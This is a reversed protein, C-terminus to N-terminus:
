FVGVVFYILPDCGDPKIARMSHVRPSTPQVGFIPIQQVASVFVRSHAGDNHSASAFAETHAAIGLGEGSM